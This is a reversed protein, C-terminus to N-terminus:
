VDTTATFPRNPPEAIRLLVITMDDHQEAGGVFAEVDGLVRERLEDSPLHAHEALLESLREEGYLDSEENMAESIGDTFLVFLDGATIPLTCEELLESFREEIDDLHLGVVLGNPILVQSRRPARGDAPVYILPTHGARAYTVTRAELDVVAYTMSIFTSNDLSASLIKNVEMLLRKPGQYIQSLSLILGKLEAMYFAASTGKGSVDAVLVGLRHEGLTVFEYYDGGVERAPRCMATVALGPFTVPGAPLLSMQIERAIRLEEELRRKEEAQKLLDGISRTMSNFSGALEGLQDGTEVQIRHSFEGHRVRETGTFLEHVAGTISRALAFGMVLAVAEITLFMVGIAMLVILFASAFGFDGGRVVLGFVASPQVQFSVSGRGHTGTSWDLADFFLVWSLGLGAGEDTGAGGPSLLVRPEEAVPLTTESESEGVPNAVSAEILDIGNELQMREVVDGVIPLDAVVVYRRGAVDVLEAGRAVMARRGEAEAMVIGSGGRELWDPFGPPGATHRWLGAAGGFVAGVGGQPVVAIAALPYRAEVVRLRHELLARVETAEDLRELDVATTAVLGVADDVVDEFSRQVLSSSVTGLMLLGALVFFSVILVIPVFGILIYSLVLKRRVRWLLRRQLLALIRVLLYGLAVVLVITGASDLVRLWGPAGAGFLGIVLKFGVILFLIRGRPSLASRRLDAWEGDSTSAGEHDGPATPLTRPATPPSSPPTM